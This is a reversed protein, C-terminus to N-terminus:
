DAGQHHLAFVSLVVKRFLVLRDRSEFKSGFFFGNVDHEAFETVFYECHMTISQGETSSISIPVYALGKSVLQLFREKGRLSQLLTVERIFAPHRYDRDIHLLDPDFFKIIVKQQMVSDDASFVVSLSGMQSKPEGTDPDRNMVKINSYRCDLVKGQLSKILTQANPRVNNSGSTPLLDSTAM